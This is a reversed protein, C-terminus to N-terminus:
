YGQRNEEAERSYFGQEKDWDWWTIDTEVSEIFEVFSPTLQTKGGADWWARVGPSTLIGAARSIEARWLEEDIAGAKYLYHTSQAMQMMSMHLMAYAVHTDEGLNRSDPHGLSVVRSLATDTIAMNIEMNAAMWAQYSQTELQRTNQRLEFALFVIGAIVAVNAILMFWRNANEFNM